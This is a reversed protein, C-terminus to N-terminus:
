KGGAPNSNEAIELLFGEIAEFNHSHLFQFAKGVFDSASSNDADIFKIIAKVTESRMNLYLVGDSYLSTEEMVDGFDVFKVGFGFKKRVKTSVPLSRLDSEEPLTKSIDVAEIENHEFYGKMLDFDTFEREGDGEEKLLRSEIVLYGRRELAYRSIEQLDNRKKYYSDGNFEGAEIVFRGAPRYVYVVDQELCDCLEITEENKKKADYHGISDFFLEKESDELRVFLEHLLFRYFNKAALECDNKTILVLSQIIIGLKSNIRLKVVDSKNNRIFNERSAALDLEGTHM